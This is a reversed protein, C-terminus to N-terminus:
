NKANELNATQPKCNATQLKCNATQLKCNATCLYEASEAGAKRNDATLGLQM